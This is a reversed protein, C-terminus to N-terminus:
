DSCHCCWWMPGLDCARTGRGKRPMPSATAKVIKVLETIGGSPGGDMGDVEDLIILAPRKSGFMSQMSQADSIRERITKGSREDSANIEM